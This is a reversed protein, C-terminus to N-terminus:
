TDNGDHDLSEPATKEGFTHAFVEGTAIFLIPLAWFLGVLIPISAIIIMLSCVLMLGFYRWWFQTIAKRSTELAEWVGM